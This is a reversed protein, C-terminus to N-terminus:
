DPIHTIKRELLEEAKDLQTTFRKFFRREELTMERISGLQGLAGEEETLAERLDAFQETLSRNATQARYAARARMTTFRNWLFWGLYALFAIFLLLLIIPSSYTLVRWFTDAWGSGGGSLVIVAASSTARNGAVDLAVVEVTNGGAPLHSLEYSATSTSVAVPDGDNVRVEYNQMGSLTDASTFSLLPPTGRTFSIAPASPPNTDINFRYTSVPGWGDADRVQLHFYTVGDDADISRGDIPSTYLKTPTGAPDTDYGTRVQTVGLPNKWSVSASSNSYWRSQDPHTLSTLSLPGVSSQKTPTAPQPTPAPTPAPAAGVTITASPASTLLETGQGDNALVSASSFRVTATGAATARFVITIITGGSGQYGPNPVVGSFTITGDSNSYAPDQVWLPITAGKSVSVVQLTGAPFTITGSVANMAQDSSSVLVRETFTGNVSVSTNSPSLSLTAAFAAHAGFVVGLLLLPLYAVRAIKTKSLAM